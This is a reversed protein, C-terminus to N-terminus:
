GRRRADACAVALVEQAVTFHYWGMEKPRGASLVDRAFRDLHYLSFESPIHRRMCAHMHMMRMHMCAHMHVHMHVHMHMCM